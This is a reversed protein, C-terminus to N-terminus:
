AQGAYAQGVTKEGEVTAWAVNGPTAGSWVVIVQEGQEIERQDPQKLDIWRGAASAEAEHAPRDGFVRMAM